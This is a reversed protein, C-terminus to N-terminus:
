VKRGQLWWEQLEALMSKLKDWKDQSVLVTVYGNNTRVVGGAWAGPTQTSDCRKRPADQLGLHSLISATKRSADWADKKTPGWPRSDDVFTV